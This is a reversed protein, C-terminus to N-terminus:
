GQGGASRRKRRFRPALLLLPGILLCALGLLVLAPLLYRSASDVSVLMFGTPLTTGNGVSGVGRSAGTPSTAGSPSPSTSSLPLTESDNANGSDGSSSSDDDTSSGGSSSSVPTSTTTQTTAPTTTATTAPTTTPTTTATTAPAAVIDAAIDAMAAKYLSDSLPAYGVPLTTSTHSYNVLNTLLDTMASATESPQKTTPVVAYTVDPMPYAGAEPTTYDVGFTGSPCTLEDAAPCATLNTEAAELTTPTPSVFDGKANELNATTLGYFGAESSDMIGFAANCDAGCDQPASNGAGFAVSRIQKAQLSPNESPNANRITAVTPISSTPDCSSFVAPPGSQSVSTLTASALNTDQVKVAVPNSGGTPDVENVGVSYPTNPANCMWDMAQYSSGSSVSANATYLNLPGSTGSSVPNLLDFADFKAENQIEIKM